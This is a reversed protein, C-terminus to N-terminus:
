SHLDLKNAREVVEALDAMSDFLHMAGAATLMEGHAPSIHSGGLFGVVRMGAARAAQVGTVSDEIVLCAAPESNLQRAAYLYGDPAPKPRGVDEASYVHGGLLPILGACEVSAHLREYASNSVVAVPLGIETYAQLVGPIPTARSVVLADIKRQLFVRREDGLAQGLRDELLRIIDIIRRGFMDKLHTSIEPCQFVERLVEELIEDAATETDVVVGDCDSLICSIKPQM